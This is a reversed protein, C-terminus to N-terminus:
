PRKQRHAPKKKAITTRQSKGAAITMAAHVSGDTPTPDKAFHDSVTAMGKLFARKIQPLTVVTERAARKRGRAHAVANKIGECLEIGIDPKKTKMM